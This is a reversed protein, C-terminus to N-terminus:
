CLRELRMAMRLELAKLGFYRSLSYAIIDGEAGMGLGVLFAAALAAKGGAGFMLLGIGLSAGCFFFAALRPAFFRDSFQRGPLIVKRAGFRDILRGTLPACVAATLNQLTFAFSVAARGAHFDQSLPKFFVGCFLSCNARGWPVPGACGYGSGVLRLVSAYAQNTLSVGCIQSPHYSEKARM